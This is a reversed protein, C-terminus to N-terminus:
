RRSNGGDRGVPMWGRMGAGLSVRMFDGTERQGWRNRICNSHLTFAFNFCGPPPNPCNGSGPMATLWIIQFEQATGEPKQLHICVFVTRAASENRGGGPPPLDIRLASRSPTFVVEGDRDMYNCLVGGRAGETRSGGGGPSPSSFSIENERRPACRTRGSTASGIALEALFCDLAFNKGPNSRQRECHCDRRAARSLAGSSHWAVTL